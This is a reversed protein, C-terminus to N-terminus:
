PLIWVHHEHVNVNIIQVQTVFVVPRAMCKQTDIVGREYATRIQENGYLQSLTLGILMAFLVVVTRSISTQRIINPNAPAASTTNM